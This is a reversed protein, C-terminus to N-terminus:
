PKKPLIRRHFTSLGNLEWIILVLLVSFTGSASASAFHPINTYRAFAWNLALGLGTGLLLTGIKLLSKNDYFFLHEHSHRFIPVFLGANILFPVFGLTIMLGTKGLFYTLLIAIACSLLRIITAVVFVETEYGLSISMKRALNGPAILFATMLQISLLVIFFSLESDSVRETSILYRLVGYGSVGILIIPMVARNVFLQLAQRALKKGQNDEAALSKSFVTHFNVSVPGILLGTTRSIIRQVYGFVAYTGHPLLSAAANLSTLYLMTAGTSSLMAPITRAPKLISFHPSKLKPRYQFGLQRSIFMMFIFVALQGAWFGVVLAWVGKDYLLVVLIPNAIRGLIVAIESAIYKGEALTLGRLIGALVQLLLTPLVLVLVYYVMVKTEEDFGPVVLQVLPWAICFILGVFTAMFLVGWSMIVAFAEMGADRSVERELKHFTPVFLEAMQNTQSLKMVTTQIFTAAFFIKIPASTGFITALVAVQLMALGASIAKFITLKNLQEFQNKSSKQSM